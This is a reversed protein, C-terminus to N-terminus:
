LVEIKYSIKVKKSSEEKLLAYLNNKLGYTINSEIFELNLKAVTAGDIETFVYGVDLTEITYEATIM